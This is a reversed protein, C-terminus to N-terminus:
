SSRAAASRVVVVGGSEQASVPFRRPPDECRGESCAGDVRVHAPHVQIAHAVHDKIAIVRNDIPAGRELGYVHAVSGPIWDMRKVDADALETRDDYFRSLCAGEVYKKEALFPVRQHRDSNRHGTPVLLEVHRLTAWVRGEPDIMQIRFMPLAAGGDFGSFRLELRVKGRTPPPGFFRATTRVPIGVHGPHIKDSWQELEDHPIAQLAGDLLVQHLTGVPASGGGADLIATAGRPGYAIREIIQLAPGHGIAGTEYPTGSPSAGELLSWARPPTPWRRGLRVRGAAVKRPPAADLVEYLVASTELEDVRTSARGRLLKVDTRLRRAADCVLWGHARFDDGGLV